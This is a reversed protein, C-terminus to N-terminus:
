MVQGKYGSELIKNRMGDGSCSRWRRVQGMQVRVRVRGVVRWHPWEM